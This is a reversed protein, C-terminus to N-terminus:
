KRPNGPSRNLWGDVEADEGDIFVFAGSDEDLMMYYGDIQDLCDFTKGAKLTYAEPYDSGPGTRVGTKRTTVGEFTPSQRYSGEFCNDYHRVDMPIFAAAAGRLNIIYFDDYFGIVQCRTFKALSGVKKSATDPAIYAPVNSEMLVIELTNRVVYDSNVWGPKWEASKSGTKYEVAFFGNEMRIDDASEADRCMLLEGHSVSALKKSNSRPESWVSASKSIVRLYFPDASTVGGLGDVSRYGDYEDAYSAFATYGYVASRVWARQGDAMAGAACMMLLLFCIAKKMHMMRQKRCLRSEEDMIVSVADPNM